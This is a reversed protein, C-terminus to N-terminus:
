QAQGKLAAEARAIAARTAGHKAKMHSGLGLFGVRKGCEPCAVFSGVDFPKTHPADWGEGLILVLLAKARVFDCGDGHAGDQEGCSPCLTMMRGDYETQYSDFAVLSKLAEMLEGADVQPAPAAPAAALMAEVQEFECLAAAEDVEIWRGHKDLVRKVGPPDSLWFSYRPQAYIRRRLLEFAAHLDPVGVAHAALTSTDALMRKLDAVANNVQEIDGSGHQSTFEGYSMLHLLDAVRSRLAFDRPLEAPAGVAHAALAAHAYGTMAAHVQRDIEKAAETVDRGLSAYAWREIAMWIPHTGSKMDPLEPLEAAQPTTNM